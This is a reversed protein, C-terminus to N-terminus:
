QSADALALVDRAIGRGYHLYPTDENGRLGWIQAKIAIETVNGAQQAFIQDDLDHLADWQRGWQREAQVIESGDIMGQLAQEARTVVGALGIRSQWLDNM